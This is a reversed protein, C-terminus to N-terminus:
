AAHRVHRAPRPARTAASTRRASPRPCPPPPLRARPAAQTRRPRLGSRVTRAAVTRREALRLGLRVAPRHVPAHAPATRAILQQSLVPQAIIRDAEMAIYYGGSAAVSGMSALVPKGAEKLAAIERRIFESALMSGGPSDIRLVVAAVKDDYRAERLTAALTDGGVTGPPQEGDLIEGSAVVVAIKRRASRQLAEESRLVLLYQEFDIANFSHTGDDEGVLATVDHEFEDRAKLGNVLGSALAYQAADGRHERMGAAAEDAYAQVAAPELRRARAM